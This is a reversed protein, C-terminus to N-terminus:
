TGNGVGEEGVNEGEGAEDKKAHEDETTKGHQGSGGVFLRLFLTFFHDGRGQGTKDNDKDGVPEGLDKLDDEFDVNDGLCPRM